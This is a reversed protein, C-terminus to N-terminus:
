PHSSIYARTLPGFYGAAPSIGSAKQFKILAARTANGFYTTENGLSGPGSPAVTFGKSNLYIQLQRVDEGTMGFQLDRTYNGQVFSEAAPSITIGQAKAQLILAKLQTILSALLDQLTLSPTTSATTTATTTITTTATSTSTTTTTGGGYYYSSSPQSYSYTAFDSAQCTFITAFGGAVTVTTVPHSGNGNLCTDTASATFGATTWTAGGDPSRRIDLVTGDPVPVQIRLIVPASFHLTIGPIGFQINGQLTVGATMLSSSLIFNTDNTSDITTADFASGDDKTIVTGIPIIVGGMGAYSAAMSGINDNATLQTTDTPVGGEPLTFLTGIDDPNFQSAGWTFSDPVQTINGALDPIRFTYTYTVGDEKFGGDGEETLVTSSMWGDTPDGGGSGSMGAAGIEPTSTSVWGITEGGDTSLWYEGTDNRQVLLDGLGTGGADTWHGWITATSTSDSVVFTNADYFDNPISFELVPPTNDVIFTASPGAGLASGGENSATGATVTIGLTGDGSIGSIAVTRTSTGTGSVGVTGTATGTADLTINEPSLTVDIADGYTVTYIAVTSSTIELSPSSIDITPVPVTHAPVIMSVTSTGNSAGCTLAFTVNGTVQLVGYTVTGDAVIQSNESLDITTTIPYRVVSIAKTIANTDVGETLTIPSAAALDAQNYIVKDACTVGANAQQVFVLGFLVFGVILFLPTFKKFSSRRM